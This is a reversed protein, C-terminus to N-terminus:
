KAECKPKNAACWARMKAVNAEQEALTTAFLTEGTDFNVTVFYFWPGPPPDAAAAIAKAGPSNIPGPPLGKHAYTDYPSSASKKVDAASLIGRKQLAFNRTSDIQLFGATPGTPQSLRNEIVRAIKGQDDSPGAEAEVLSAVILVHQYRDPAVKAAALESKAKTVLRRLQEVAPTNDGFQYTAPFLWGEINGKAQPPLGIAPSRAAADYDARPVGTARALRDFVEAAWLGEPLPVTPNSANAPNSVFTFADVGRMGRKLTYTGPQIKAALQPDANAAELYATRTKVVGAAKLSTAITEGDEGPRITVRVSGEGPGPYDIDGKTFYSVVSSAVPRLVTVAALGAGAVIALAVALTVWRRGRRGRRRRRRRTAPRASGRRTGPPNEDDGGFIEQDLTDSM